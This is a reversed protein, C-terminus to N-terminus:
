AEIGKQQSVESVTTGFCAMMAGLELILLENESARECEPSEGAMIVNIQDLLRMMHRIGEAIHSCEWPGDGDYAQIFRLVAMQHRDSRILKDSILRMRAREREVSKDNNM